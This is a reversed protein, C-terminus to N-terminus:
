FQRLYRASDASGPRRAWYTEASTDLDKKMPDHGIRRLIWGLTTFLGYYVVALITYSIILGLPYTLYLWGRYVSLRLRPITWFVVAALYGAIVVVVPVTELGFQFRLLFGFLSVFVPLLLGFWFLERSSPNKNIEILAM